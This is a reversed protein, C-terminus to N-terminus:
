LIKFTAAFLLIFISFEVQSVPSMNGPNTLILLQGPSSVPHDTHSGSQASIKYSGGLTVLLSM